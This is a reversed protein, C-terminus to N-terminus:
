PAVVFGSGAFERMAEPTVMVALWQRAAPLDSALTETLGLADVVKAFHTGATAARAPDAFAISPAALLVRGALAGVTDYRARQTHGTAKQFAPASYM